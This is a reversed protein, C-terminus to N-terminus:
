GLCICSAFDTKVIAFDGWLEQPFATEVSGANQRGFIMVYSVSLQIM